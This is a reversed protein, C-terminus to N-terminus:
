ALLDSEQLIESVTRLELSPAGFISEKESIKKVDEPNVRAELSADKLLHFRILKSTEEQTLEINRTKHKKAVCEFSNKKRNKKHKPRMSANTLTYDEPVNSEEKANQASNQATKPAGLASSRSKSIAPQSM